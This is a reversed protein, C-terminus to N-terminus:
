QGARKGPDTKPHKRYYGAEDFGHVADQIADPAHGQQLATFCWVMEQNTADRGLEKLFIARCVDVATQDKGTVVTPPKVVCASLAFALLWLKVGRRKRDDTCTEGGATVEGTGGMSQELTRRSRHGM